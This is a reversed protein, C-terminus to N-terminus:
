SEGFRFVVGATLRFNNQTAASTGVKFRTMLYEAQALRISIRDNVRLDVGGGATMAFANESTTVGLVNAGIHSGGLLVQGFPELRERRFTLRPGFLYTYLNGDVSVGGINSVHYGGFDGVIGINSWPNYAGSASGGNLNFAPIGHGPNSRIYSYGVSAEVKPTEQAVTRLAPILIIALTFIVKKM